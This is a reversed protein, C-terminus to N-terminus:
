FPFYLGAEIRKEEAAKARIFFNGGSPLRKSFTIQLGLPKGKKNILEFLLEKDKSLKKNLMFIWTLKGRKSNLTIKFRDKLYKCRGYLSISKVSDKKLGITLDLNEEGLSVAKNTLAVDFKIKDKSSGEVMFNLSNRCFEWSGELVLCSIIEKKLFKKKYFLLINNEKTVQWNNGFSFEDFDSSTKVEFILNNLKDVKWRGSLMLQRRSYLKPTTRKLIKFSICSKSIKEIKASFSLSQGFFSSYSENTIFTLNGNPISWTGEIKLSHPLKTTASHPPHYFLENNRLEFYAKINKKPMIKNSLIVNCTERIVDKKM